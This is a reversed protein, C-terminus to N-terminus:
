TSIFVRKKKLYGIPEQVFLLGENLNNQLAIEIMCAM